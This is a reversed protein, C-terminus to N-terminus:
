CCLKQRKPRIGLSSLKLQEAQIYHQNEQWSLAITESQWRPLNDALSYFVWKGDRRGTLLGSSKLQALHRSIKPQSLDLAHTLECVCVEQEAHALLIIKLRTDDALNKFFLIPTM